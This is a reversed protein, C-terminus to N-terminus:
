TPSGSCSDLTLNTIVKSLSVCNGAYHREGSSRFGPADWQVPRAEIAGTMNLGAIGDDLRAHTRRKGTRVTRRETPEKRIWDANVGIGARNGVDILIKGSLTGIVTFTNIIHAREISHKRAPKGISRQQAMIQDFASVDPHAQSAIDFQKILERLIVQTVDLTLVAPNSTIPLDGIPDHRLNWFGAAPMHGLGSEGNLRQFINSLRCACSAALPWDPKIAPRM